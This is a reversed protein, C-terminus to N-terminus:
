TPIYELRVTEISNREFTLNISSTGKPRTRHATNAPVTIMQGQALELTTDELDLLLIGEMVLFTEDSNPHYHWYFPSTMTSLRIVHDNFQTLTLNQYGAVTDLPAKPLTIIDAASLPM